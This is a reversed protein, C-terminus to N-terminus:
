GATDVFCDMCVLRLSGPGDNVLAHPENPAVTFV